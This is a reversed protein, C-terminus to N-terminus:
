RGHRGGFRYRHYVEGRRDVGVTNSPDSRSDCPPAAPTLPPSAIAAIEDLVARYESAIVAVRALANTIRRVRERLDTLDREVIAARSEADVRLRQEQLYQGTDAM